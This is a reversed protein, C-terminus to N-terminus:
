LRPYGNRRFGYSINDKFLLVFMKTDRTANRLLNGASAYIADAKSPDAQEDAKTPFQIGMANALTAHYRGKSVEDFTDDSHRLVQTTPTGGWKKWLAKEKSKGLQRAADSLLFLLGCALLTSLIGSLLTAKEGYLAIVMIAPSALVLLAPILRAQREYPDSFQSVIKSFSSADM